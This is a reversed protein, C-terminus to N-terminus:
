FPDELKYPCKVDFDDRRVSNIIVMNEGSRKLQGDM